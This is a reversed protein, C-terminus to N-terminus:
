CYFLWLIFICCVIYLEENSNMIHQFTLFINDGIKNLKNSFNDIVM